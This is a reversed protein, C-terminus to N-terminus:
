MEMDQSWGLALDQWITAFVMNANMSFTAIMNMGPWGKRWLLLVMVVEYLVNPDRVSNIAGFTELTPRTM